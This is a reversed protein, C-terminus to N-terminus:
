SQEVTDDQRLIFSGTVDEISFVKIQYCEGLKKARELASESSGAEIFCCQSDSINPLEFTIKYIM